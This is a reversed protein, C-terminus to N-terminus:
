SGRRVTRSKGGTRDKINMVSQSGAEAGLVQDTFSKGKSRLLRKREAREQKRQESTKHPKSMQKEGTIFRGKGVPQAVLHVDDTFQSQM